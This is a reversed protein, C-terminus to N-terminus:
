LSQLADKTENPAKPPKSKKEKKTRNKPNKQTKNKKKKLFVFDSFRSLCVFSRVVVCVFLLLFAFLCVSLLSRWVTIVQLSVWRRSIIRHKTNKNINNNHNLQSKKSETRTPFQQYFQRTHWGRSYTCPLFCCRLFCLLTAPADHHLKAKGGCPSEAAEPWPWAYVTAQWPDRPQRSMEWYAARQWVMQMEQSRNRHQFRQKSNFWPTADVWWGKGKPSHWEKLPTNGNWPM